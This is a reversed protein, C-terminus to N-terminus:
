IKTLLGSHYDNIAQRLEDDTNMVFPGWRAVPEGIPRGALLLARGSGELQVAEGGSLVALTGRRVERGSAGIRLAGEIPYCLVAHAAPVPVSLRAGDLSLDLFLPDVDIHRVPGSHGEFSGAVV